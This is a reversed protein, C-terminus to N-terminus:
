VPKLRPPAARLRRPHFIEKLIEIAQGLYDAQRHHHVHSVRQRQALDFVDQELPADVDAVLRHTEPPVPEARYEGGLDPLAPNLIM